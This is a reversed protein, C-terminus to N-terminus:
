YHILSVLKHEKDKKAHNKFKKIQYEYTLTQLVSPFNSIQCKECFGKTVTIVPLQLCCTVKSLILTFSIIVASTQWLNMSRPSNNKIFVIEVFQGFKLSQITSDLFPKPKGRVDIQNVQVLLDGESIDLYDISQAFTYSPLAINFVNNIYQSIFFFLRVVIPKEESNPM